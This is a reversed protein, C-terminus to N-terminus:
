ERIKPEGPPMIANLQLERGTYIDDFGVKRMRIGRERVRKSFKDPFKEMFNTCFEKSGYVVGYTMYRVRSHISDVFSIRGRTKLVEQVQDHSFGKKVVRGADDIIEEGATITYSRYWKQAEKWQERFEKKSLSKAPFNNSSNFRNVLDVIAIRAKRNGLFASGCSSFIYHMSDEVIGARLANNEIYTAMSFLAGPKDQILVSKYRQGWFVGDRNYKTNYWCAYRQKLTKMYAPTSYMRDTFKKRIPKWWLEFAPINKRKVFTNYDRRLGYYYDSGYLIRIRRFLEKDTIEQKEPTHILVHFHNPMVSYALVQCGSFEETKRMIEVFKRKNYDDDFFRTKSCTRSMLHVFQEVGVEPLMRVPM